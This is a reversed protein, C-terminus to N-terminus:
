LRAGAQAVPPTACLHYATLGAEWFRPVLARQAGWRGQEVPLTVCFPYQDFSRQWLPPRIAALDLFTKYTTWAQVERADPRLKLLLRSGSKGSMVESIRLEIPAAHVASFGFAALEFGMRGVYAMAIVSFPVVAISAVLSKAPGVQRVGRFRWMEIFLYFGFLVGIFYTFINLPQPAQTLLVTGGFLTERVLFLALLPLITWMLVRRFRRYEPANKMEDSVPAEALIM